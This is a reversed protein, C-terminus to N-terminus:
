AWFGQKLVLHSQTNIFARMACTMQHMINSLREWYLRTMKVALISQLPTFCKEDSWTVVKGADQHKIRNLLKKTRERRCMKAGPPINHHRPRVYNKLGLNEKVARQMASWSIGLDRMLASVTTRPAKTVKHRVKSLMEPTGVTTPSQRKKRQVSQTALTHRQLICWHGMKDTSTNHGVMFAGCFLVVGKKETEMEEERQPPTDMKLTKKVQCSFIHEKESSKHTLHWLGSKGLSFQM